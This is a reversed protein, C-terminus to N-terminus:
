AGFGEFRNELSVIQGATLTASKLKQQSAPTITTSNSNSDTVDNIQSEQNKNTGAAETYDTNGTSGSKENDDKSLFFGLAVFALFGVVALIALKFLCGMCSRKKPAQYSHDIGNQEYSPEDAEEHDVYVPIASMEQSEILKRHRREKINRNTREAAEQQNRRRSEEFDQKSREKAREREQRERDLRNQLDQKKAIDEFKEGFGPLFHFHVSDKVFEDRFRFHDICDIGFALGDVLFSRFVFTDM